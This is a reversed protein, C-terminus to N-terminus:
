HLKCHVPHLLAMHEAGKFPLKETSYYHVVEPISAFVGSAQSLTYKNDKTRAVIIHVCGQSTRPSCCVDTTGGAGPAWGGAWRGCGCGGRNTGTGSRNNRSWPSRKRLFSVGGASGVIRWPPPCAMEGGGGWCLALIGPDGWSTPPPAM